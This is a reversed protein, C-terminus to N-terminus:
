RWKQINVNQKKLVSNAKLLLEKLEAGEPTLQIILSRADDYKLQILGKSEFYHFYKVQYAINMLRCNKSISKGEQINLFIKIWIPYFIQAM